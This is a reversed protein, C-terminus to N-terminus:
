QSSQSYKIYIYKIYTVKVKDESDENQPRGTHRHCKRLGAMQENNNNNNNM